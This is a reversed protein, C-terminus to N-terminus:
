KRKKRKINPGVNKKESKVETKEENKVEEKEEKKAEAEKEAVPEEKVEEVPAPEVKKEEAPGDKKPSIKLDGMDIKMMDINGRFKAGDKIVLRPAKIDGIMRGSETIEIKDNVTINGNIRGSIETNQTQVDAELVGTEMITLNKNLKISGEVRGEIILDEDGELEGKIVITKGIVTHKDEM